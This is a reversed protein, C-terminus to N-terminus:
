KQHRYKISLGLVWCIFIFTLGNAAVVPWAKVGVGYVFWLLVGLGLTGFAHFSIGAAKKTRILRLVQPVYGFTTLAGAFFGLMEWSMYKM